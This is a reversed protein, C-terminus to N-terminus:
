DVMYFSGGFNSFGYVVRFRTDPEFPSILSDCPHTKMVYNKGIECQDLQRSSNAKSIFPMGQTIRIWAETSFGECRFEDVAELSRFVQGLMIELVRDSIVWPGNLELFRLSPVVLREPHPELPKRRVAETEIIKNRKWQQWETMVKEFHSRLAPERELMKEINGAVKKMVKARGGSKDRLLAEAKQSFKSEVSERRTELHERRNAVLQGNEPGRVIPRGAVNQAPFFKVEQNQQAKEQRRRHNELTMLHMQVKAAATMAVPSRLEGTLEQFPGERTVLESEPESEDQPDSEIVSPVLPAVEFDAETLVREVREQTSFITLSMEQLNPTGQLLRFQFPLSFEISLHLTVLNPLDWDWTWRPRSINNRIVVEETVFAHEQSVAHVSPTFIRDLASPAGLVLTTLKKTSHLTDPNFTLAPTGALYLQTLDPVCAPLAQRIERLDYIRLWDTLMLSRLSPCSSMLNPGIDLRESVMKVSLWYLAPMKWGYGARVIQNNTPNSFTSQGFPQPGHGEVFLMQLTGGFAKGIDDVESGFPEQAARIAVRELPPVAAADMKLAWKFSDPGLSVMNFFKLATCRHLFPKAKLDAYWPEGHEWVDILTVHELITQERDAIFQKWNRNVLRTPRDLGPLLGLMQSLIHPPCSQGVMGGLAYNTPCMVKKLTGRFLVTHHRVFEVAAELDRTRQAQIEHVKALADESMRQLWFDERDAYQDLRFTVAALSSLRPVADLYREIDSLPIIISKLQELVQSCLVWTLERHIDLNLHAITNECIPEGDDDLRECDVPAMLGLADFKEM